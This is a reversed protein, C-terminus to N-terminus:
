QKSALTVLQRAWAEINSWDRTDYIKTTDLGNKRLSKKNVIVTVNVILGHSRYFDIFGGFYGLSLPKLGYQEDIDDLYQKKAEDKAKDKRDVM